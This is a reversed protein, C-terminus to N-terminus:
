SRQGSVARPVARFRTRDTTAYRGDRCKRLNGEHLLRDCARLMDERVDAVGIQDLKEMVMPRSFRLHGEIDVLYAAAAEFLDPLGTAAIRAAYAKFDEPPTDSQAHEAGRLADDRQDSVFRLPETALDVPSVAQARHPAIRAQRLRAAAHSGSRGPIGERDRHPLAPMGTEARTAAVAARLYQIANRRRSSAPTELHGDTEEFIRALDDPSEAPPRRDANATGPRAADRAADRAALAARDAALSALERQLAREVEPSPPAHAADRPIRDPPNAVDGKRARHDGADGTMLRSPDARRASLVRAATAHDTGGSPQRDATRGPVASGVRQAVHGQMDAIGAGTGQAPVARLVIGGDQRQVEVQRDMGRTAIGTLIDIDPAGPAVGPDSAIAELYRLYDLIAAMIQLPDDFGDLACSFAGYSVTLTKGVEAM